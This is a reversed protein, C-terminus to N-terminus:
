VDWVKGRFQVKGEGMVMVLEPYLLVGDAWTLVAFGSRHNRPNDQTYDFQPGYPDALCGTQIGYRTGRYDTWCNVGLQHTHGTCLSTGSSVANNHGAHLGGKYSHKIVLDGDNVWVAWCPTWHPYHDKLHFGHIRAYEPAQQALRSEFRADHNGLTWIHEARESAAEVERLRDQCAEMEEILGPRDEWNQAPFRSISSGDLVDGNMIVAKLQKGFLKCAHVLARHATSPEGPWYHADSAVLVVGDQIDMTHRQPHSESPRQAASRPDPPMLRTQTAQEILCRKRRVTRVNLGTIKATEAMGHKAILRALDADSVKRGPHNSGM